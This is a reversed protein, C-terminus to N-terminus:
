FDTSLIDKLDDLSIKKGLTRDASIISDVLGRKQEKLKMIREEVTGRTILRYVFVNKTQGIRHVRDTAQDEAAPNWWPDYHIVFDAGTLNLGTGGAKLSVLFVPISDDNNFRDVAGQRDKTQGTLMEFKLNKRELWSKIIKLMEVFQSFVLIRHGNEIAAELMDQLAEFKGSEHLGGSLEPGLLSPHNCVQRLRVLARFIANQDAKGGRLMAEELLENRTKELVQMYLDQQQDTLECYQVMELKPPLDKLVDRKMRRLIFPFVQKKLRREADRNGREEIPMIFRRRFDSFEELFGPMLFDFVSWLESLRNEIPTGSLALRHRSDLQKAATATQSEWNKIHQSEDLIVHRFPYDKLAVIDRRLIAYSTIVLDTSKIKPYLDYREPGTLNMVTLEPTFKKIENIWNYVVSTPCVILSPMSGHKDHAAQLLILAQLTKGLGMDDALIGNLGYSYLFWLWHFGREQYARLEANVSVPVELEDMSKGATLVDWFKKFKRSMSLTVGQDSLEGLLGAKYTQVRYFDPGVVDADFAQITRNLQLLDTLPVEVFGVGNMFFYKKGQLLHNQVDDMELVQNGMQCAMAMTFNAVSSEDFEIRALLKLQNPSAKLVQMEKPNIRHVMWGDKELKPLTNNYFDVADDGEVQFHNVQLHQMGRDVLYEYLVQEAKFDRRVWFQPEKKKNVVVVYPTDPPTKSFPIKTKDYHYSLTARLRMAAMDVMEISFGAKPAMLKPQLLELSESDEIRIKKRLAPLTEIIFKGGDADRLDTFTNKILYDPLAGPAPQLFYLVQDRVAWPVEKHFIAVEALPWEDQTSPRFWHLSVSVQGMNAAYVGMSLQLPENAFGLRRGQKDCVEEVNALLPLVTQMHGSNLHYWGQKDSPQKLGVKLMTQFVAFEQKHLDTYRTDKRTMLVEKLLAEPSRVTAGKARDFVKLGIAKGPSRQLDLLFRFRGKPNVLPEPAETDEPLGWFAEWLKQEVANLAVAVAHKCWKEELPCSCDVQVGDPDFMLQTLYHDQFNGKVRAMVGTPTMQLDQVQSTQYYQYGRRWSGPRALRKVLGFNFHTLGSSSNTTTTTTTTTSTSATTSSSSLSSSSSPLATSGTM